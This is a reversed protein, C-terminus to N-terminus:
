AIRGGPTGASSTSSHMSITRDIITPPGSGFGRRRRAQPVTQDPTQVPPGHVRFRMATDLYRFESGVPGHRPRIFPAYRGVDAM